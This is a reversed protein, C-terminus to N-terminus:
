AHILAAPSIKIKLISRQHGIAMAIEARYLLFCIQSIFIHELNQFFKTATRTRTYPKIEATGARFFKNENATPKKLLFQPEGTEKHVAMSGNTFPLLRNSPRWKARLREGM